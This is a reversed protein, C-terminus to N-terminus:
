TLQPWTAALQDALRVATPLFTTTADFLPGTSVRGVMSTAVARHIADLSVTQLSLLFNTGGVWMEYM